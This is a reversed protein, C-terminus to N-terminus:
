MIRFQRDLLSRLARTQFLEEFRFNNRAASFERGAALRLTRSNSVIYLSTLKDIQGAIRTLYVIHTKFREDPLGSREVVSSFGIMEKLYAQISKQFDVRLKAETEPDFKEVTLNSRRANELQVMTRNIELLSRTLNNSSQTLSRNSAEIQAQRHLLQNFQEEAM